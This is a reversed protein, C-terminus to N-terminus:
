PGGATRISRLADKTFYAVRGPQDIESVLITDMLSLRNPILPKVVDGLSHPVLENAAIRAVHKQILKRSVFQVGKCSRFQELKKLQHDHPHQSWQWAKHITIEGSKTANKIVPEAHTAIQKAKTLSGTSVDAIAAIEARVEVKQAETLDSSGKKQGGIQQNSRAKEQLPPELDLALLSRCFSNMGKSPWHTQVLWRVADEDNLDYELCLITERNEQRALEYRAYGDIIIGERTAIIPSQFVVDSDRKLSALRSSSVSFKHRLYSPHPRLQELRRSTSRFPLDCAASDKAQREQQDCTM